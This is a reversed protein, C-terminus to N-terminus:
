NLDVRTGTITVSGGAAINIDGGSQVNLDGDHNLSVNGAPDMHLTTSGIKVMLHVQKDTNRAIAWKQDVDKSTLDEHDPSTGIRVYAGSPHYVEMNGADDITSYVDSAHRMIRRNKEDFTIQTVQPLLFGVVIPVGRIFGVVARVYREYNRKIDWRSDDPFGGIDPLDVMGTSSSGTPVLVQVNSLRSGDDPLLVDVSNGAPYTAVVIGLKLDQFM